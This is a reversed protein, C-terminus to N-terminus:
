FRCKSPFMKLFTLQVVFEIVEQNEKGETVM